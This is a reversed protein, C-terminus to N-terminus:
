LVKKSLADLFNFLESFLHGRLQKVCELQLVILHLTAGEQRNEFCWLTNIHVSLVTCLYKKLLIAFFNKEIKKKVINHSKIHHLRLFKKECCKKLYYRTIKCPTPRLIYNLHIHHHRYATKYPVTGSVGLIEHLANKTTDWIVLFFKKRSDNNNKSIKLRSIPSHFLKYAVNALAGIWVTVVSLNWSWSNQKMPYWLSALTESSVMPTEDRCGVSNHSIKQSFHFRGSRNLYGEL